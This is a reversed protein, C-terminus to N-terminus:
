FSQSLSFYVQARQQDVVNRDVNRYYVPLAYALTLSTGGAISGSISFGADGLSRTVPSIAPTIHFRTVGAEVFAAGSVTFRDWTWPPANVSVRGLGGLDGLIVAPLWASLNGLGGLIWQQNQPLTSDSWQGSVAVGLVYNAPLAQQYNVNAQILSFRTNPSGVVIPVFTGRPPTLGQMATLGTQINANFGFVRLSKNYSTGLSVFDYRQDTLRFTQDSDTFVDVVNQTHTFAETVAWRTTEDAYLLQTGTVGSIQIDGKPFLGAGAEGGIRYNIGNYTAGYIGWPTVISAGVTGSHYLSGGSANTLGPLGQSWNATLELGAGPRLAGYASALYRSSFRSGLNGFNVGASWQRAGELPEESVIIKSGGVEQAKAFSVVPRMGQRSSYFEAVSSKRFITSRQLDDRGEIGGFYPALDPTMESETLRGQIVKISVLQRDVQGTLATLFYGRNVYERALADIAEKPTAAAELTAKVVDPSLLTNGAVAYHFGHSDAFISPAPDQAGSVVAPPPPPAPAQALPPIDFAM